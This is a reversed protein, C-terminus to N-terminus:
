VKAELKKIWDSAEKCLEYKEGQECRPLNLKLTELYNDKDVTLDMDVKSLIALNVKDAGVSLGKCVSAVVEISVEISREQLEIELEQLNTANFELM